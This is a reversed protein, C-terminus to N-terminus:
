RAAQAFSPNRLLVALGDDQQGDSMGPIRRSRGAEQRETIVYGNRESHVGRGDREDGEILFM